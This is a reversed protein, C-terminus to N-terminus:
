ESANICDSGKSLVFRELEYYEEPMKIKSMSDRLENLADPDNVRLAELPEYDEDLDYETVINNLSAILWRPKTYHGKNIASHVGFDSDSPMSRSFLEKNYHPYISLFYKILKKFYSKSKEIGWIYRRIGNLLFLSMHEVNINLDITAGGSALCFKRGPEYSSGYVWNFLELFVQDPLFNGHPANILSTRFFQTLVDEASDRSGQSNVLWDVAEDVVIKLSEFTQVPSYLILEDFHVRKSSDVFESVDGEFFYKKYAEVESVPEDRFPFLRHKLGQIEVPSIGKKDGQGQWLQMRRKHWAKDKPVDKLYEKSM